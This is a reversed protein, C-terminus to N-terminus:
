SINGNKDCTLTITKDITSTLGLVTQNATFHGSAKNGSFSSSCNSFSWGSNVINTMYSASTCKATNNYPYTFTATLTYSAVINNSPSKIDYKKEVTKKSTRLIYPQIEISISAYYGCSLEEIYSYSITDQAYLKAQPYFLTLVCTIITITRKINKAM